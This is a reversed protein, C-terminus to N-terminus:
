AGITVLAYTSSNSNASLWFTVSYINNSVVAFSQSLYDMFGVSGDAYSYSGNHPDMSSVAGSYSANAPNCYTWGSLTGLEFNGNSLLQIGSSNTVSVDDVFLFEPDDRLAFM